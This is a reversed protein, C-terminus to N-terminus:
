VALLSVAVPSNNPYRAIRREGCSPCFLYAAVWQETFLRARQSGSVYHAPPEEFGLSFPTDEDAM